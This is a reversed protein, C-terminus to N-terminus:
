WSFPVMFAKKLKTFELYKDSCGVIKSFLFRIATSLVPDDNIIYHYIDLFTPHAKIIITKCIVIKKLLPLYKNSLLSSRSSKPHYYVEANDCIYTCQFCPLFGYLWLRLYIHKSCTTEVPVDSSFDENTRSSTWWM